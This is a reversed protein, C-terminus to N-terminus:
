GSIYAYMHIYLYIYIYIYLHICIITYKCTFLCGFSCSSVPLSCSSTNLRTSPSTSSLASLTCRMHHFKFVHCLRSMLLTFTVNNVACTPIHQLTNCHIATHQLTAVSTVNEFPQCFQAGRNARKKTGPDNCGKGLNWCYEFFFFTNRRLGRLTPLM